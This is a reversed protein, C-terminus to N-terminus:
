PYRRVLCCLKGLIRAHQTYIPPYAPNESKLKIRNTEKYLRKLTFADEVMAIVIEGNEATDKQEIVAIDGDIIGAEKMSDGKVNVAFYNGKALFNAPLEINGDFNEESFLPKGAAVDGLIPVKKVGSAPSHQNNLIVISRSRNSGCKIVEKKELAKIHDYGGKVSIEFKEAVERITPPFHNEKIFSRIFNLIEQQRRTLNKM